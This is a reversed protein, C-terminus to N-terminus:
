AARKKSKRATAHAKRPRKHNENAARGSPKKGSTLSQALLEALDLTKAPAPRRPAEEPAEPMSNLEGAKIRRKILAMLDHRYEDEYKDPEFKGSLGTVLKEAMALEKPTVGLAKLNTSPLELGSEDRLEDAFRLILCLLAKEQAIVACLHQRSRIVVKGIGAKGTQKLTERLLAYAKQGAKQPVLYYPKDIYRVDVASLDVFDSIDIQKTIELNVQEFDSDTLVVYKGEVHEYGKVIDDWEVKKGTRKNVREYGVPAFNRRDLLTLDLENPEEASYLGVPIQVL